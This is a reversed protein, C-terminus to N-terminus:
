PTKMKFKGLWYMPSFMPTSFNSGGLLRFSWPRLVSGIAHRWLLATINWDQIQRECKKSRFTKTGKSKIVREMYFKTGILSMKKLLPLLLYIFIKFINRNSFVSILFFAHHFVESIYIMSFFSHFLNVVRWYM